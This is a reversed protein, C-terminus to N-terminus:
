RQYLDRADIGDPRDNPLGAPAHIKGLTVSFVALISVLPYSNGVTSRHFVMMRDAEEPRHTLDPPQLPEILRCRGHEIV